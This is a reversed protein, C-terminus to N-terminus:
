THINMEGGCWLLLYPLLPAVLSSWDDINSATNSGFENFYGSCGFRVLASWNEREREDVPIELQRPSLALLHLVVPVM